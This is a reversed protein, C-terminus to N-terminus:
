PLGAKASNISPPFKLSVATPSRAQLGIIFDVRKKYNLRTSANLTDPPNSPVVQKVLKRTMNLMLLPKIAPTGNKNNLEFFYTNTQKKGSEQEVIKVMLKSKGLEKEVVQSIVPAAPVAPKLLEDNIYADLYYLEQTNQKKPATRRSRRTVSREPRPKRPESAYIIKPGNERSPLEKKIALVEKKAPLVPQVRRERGMFPLLSISIAVLLLCFLGLKLKQLGKFGTQPSGSFLRKVRVLLEKRGNTAALAFRPGALRRQEELVLLARAYERHDYRFNM